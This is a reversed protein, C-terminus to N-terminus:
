ILSQEFKALWYPIAKKILTETELFDGTYWPDPVDQDEFGELFLHIKPQCYRPAKKKLDAINQHDMGIIWDYQEFDARMIQRSQMGESSIENARLVAQTGEHPPNGAEWSSTAASDIEIPLDRELVAKKLLGEAMPSRCINGLCVVLCRKM